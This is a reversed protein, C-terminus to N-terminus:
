GVLRQIEAYSATSPDPEATGAPSAAATTVAAHFLLSGCSVRRVGIEGLRGVDHRGPLYLVNLPVGIETMLTRIHGDEAIGPV